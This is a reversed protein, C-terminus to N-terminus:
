AARSKIEFKTGNYSGTSYDHILTVELSNQSNNFTMKNMPMIDTDSIEEDFDWADILFEGLEECSEFIEGSLENKIFLDKLDDYNMNSLEKYSIDLDLSCNLIDVLEMKSTYFENFDRFDRDFAKMFKYANKRGEPTNDFQKIM